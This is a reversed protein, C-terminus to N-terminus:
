QFRMCAAYGLLFARKQEPRMGICDMRANKPLSSLVHSVAADIDEPVISAGGKITNIAELIREVDPSMIM